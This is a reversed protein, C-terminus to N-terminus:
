MTFFIGYDEPELGLENKIYKYYSQSHASPLADRRVNMLSGRVWEPVEITKPPNKRRLDKQAEKIVEQLNM